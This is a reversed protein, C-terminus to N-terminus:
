SDPHREPFDVYLTVEAGRHVKTGAPPHQGTVVGDTPAPDHALCVLEREVNARLAVLSTESVYMGRFEPVVARRLPSPGYRLLLALGIFLGVGVIEM